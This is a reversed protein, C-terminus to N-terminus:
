VFAGVSVFQSGETYQGTYNRGPQTPGNLDLTPPSDVNSFHVVAVAPESQASLEDIVVVTIETPEQVPRCHFTTAM